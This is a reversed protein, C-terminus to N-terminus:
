GEFILALWMLFVVLHVAGQLLNTRGRAFTLFCVALVVCLLAVQHFPLGLEVETKFAVGILLVSPITLAITALASGLLLNISRQMKNELAAHIASLGEPALILCAVVVGALAPPAGFKETGFDLVLGLKKSLIVAPVLYAALLLFSRKLGTRPASSHGHFEGPDSFFERHRNTQIALFVAYIATCLLALVISQFPSFTPGGTTVTLDPMVLGFIALPVILSLYSSAGELNFEQQRHRFAGLLLAFGVLGGLVIMVVAFMTDRALVPNSKGSLMAASVMSVEMGTVSLTLVLTGLPEGLRHAVADAHRVVGFACALIAAFLWALFFAATGLSSLHHLWEGGITLFAVTTAIGAVLGKERLLFHLLRM